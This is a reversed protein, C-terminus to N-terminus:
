GISMRSSSFLSRSASPQVRSRKQHSPLLPAQEADDGDGSVRDYLPQDNLVQMISDNERGMVISSNSATIQVTAYPSPYRKAVSSLQHPASGSGQVDKLLSYGPPVVRDESWRPVVSSSGNLRAVEAGVRGRVAYNRLIPADDDDSAYTTVHSDNGYECLEENDVDEDPIPQLDNSPSFDDDLSLLRITSNFEDLAKAVLVLADAASSLRVRGSGKPFSSNDHTNNAHFNNSIVGSNPWPVPRNM